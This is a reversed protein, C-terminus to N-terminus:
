FDRRTWRWGGIRADGIALIWQLEAFQAQGLARTRVRNRNHNVAAAPQRLEVDRVDTMQGLRQGIQADRGPRQLIATYAVLCASPGIGKEIHGLTGIMQTFQRFGIRQIQLTDNRHTM